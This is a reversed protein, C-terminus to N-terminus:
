PISLTAKEETYCIRHRLPHGLKVLRRVSNLPARGLREEAFIFVLEGGSLIYASLDYTRTYNLGLGIM